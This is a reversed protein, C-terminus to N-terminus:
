HIRIVGEMRTMLMPHTIARLYAAQPILQGFVGSNSSVNSTLTEEPDEVDGSLMSFLSAPRVEPYECIRYEGAALGAKDAAYAIADALGGKFDALGIGLADAGTWVRGQGIEDVRSKALGRGNAVIDTFQDYVREVQDQFFGVEQESLPRMGALMDSHANSGLVEPNVKLNKRIANGFSPVISFVGISGTLTTNDTFIKEGGASIWYGGSAAYEGFSVYVPKKAGLREVERRILEAAQASGGPSNVRFVVAKVKDDSAVKALTNAMSAGVVAAGSGMGSEDEMVIDGNAYVVAIRSARKGKPLKDAYRKAKVFRVLSVSPVGMRSCICSDLQDKFWLEDVLGLTKFSEAGKLSLSDIWGNLQEMSIGRSHAIEGAMSNWMSTVMETNQLRNEDSSSNRVYMEGASKFKGHRILQVDIGLTDLIDKLYFQQTAIGTIFPDATPNLVVTNAVSALFLSQTSLNNAYAIIEKGSDRFRQLAARIEETQSIGASLKDTSLFIMSVTNDVAAQDIARVYSLLSMPQSGGQFISAFDFASSGYEQVPNSFDIKLVRGASFVNVTQVAALTLCCLMRRINM